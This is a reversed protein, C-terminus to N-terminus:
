SSRSTSSTLISIGCAQANPPPATKRSTEASTRRAANRRSSTIDHPTRAQTTNAKNTKNTKGSPTLHKINPAHHQSAPYESRFKTRLKKATEKGNGRRKM